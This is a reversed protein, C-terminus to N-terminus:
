TLNQTFVITNGDPDLIVASKKEDSIVIEGKMKGGTTKTAKIVDELNPIIFEFQQRNQRADVKAVENPCFIVNLGAFNSHYLTTNFTHKKDFDCKFVQKYFLLMEEMHEVSITVSKLKIDASELSHPLCVFVC